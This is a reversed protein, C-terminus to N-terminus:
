CKFVLGHQANERYKGLDGSIQNQIEYNTNDNNAVQWMEANYYTDVLILNKVSEPYKLAYAQAVMGGYSHGLLAIRGLGLAERLEEVDAVDRDFSYQDPSKARDSRGRGFADFSIVRYSDALVSFFPHFYHADGPGGAILVLPEGSGESEYWLKAGNVEVYAGPPHKVTTVVEKPSGSQCLARASCLLVCILIALKADGM